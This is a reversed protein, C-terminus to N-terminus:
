SGPEGIKANQIVVRWKTIESKLFADTKEPTSTVTEAGMDALKQAFASDKVTANLAQNLTKVLAPDTKGPALLVFWGSVEFGPMGSEAVTPVDPLLPSRKASTVALARLAGSRVHPLVVTINDFMMPTLGSVLDVFAAASGKYPVHMIDVGASRKFLEGALHQATGVSASAYAVKGPNAKLYTVLEPVSRAPLSPTVVLVYPTTAVFGIASFDKETNFTLKPYLTVNTAHSSPALLLTSGDPPASAVLGAAINGSAGPRNDVIISRGLKIAMDRAVMRAVIDTTGGPAFGVLIRIPQDAIAPLMVAAVTIACFLRALLPTRKKM